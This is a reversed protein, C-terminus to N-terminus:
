LEADVTYHIGLIEGVATGAAGTSVVNFGQDGSAQVATASHDAGDTIDRVQANAAAPNFLTITPATSRKRVHFPITSSIQANAGAVTAPFRAEGTGAGANQAPATAYFFSKEYYRECLALEEQFPRFRVPSAVTGLQLSVGTIRFFNTNADLANVQNTSTLLADSNWTGISATQFSAGAALTWYVSVGYGSTYDWTGASPSATFSVSKQEWTDAVSVSYEAVYSRDTGFNQLAVSHVGTKPSMVWFSLTIPRQAFYRWNYGEIVHRLMYLDGAGISADATTVDVELSYNFLVGAAAVTPVNTSRNLTVVGAGSTHWKFRDPGYQANAAAAFTTGRQWVDLSGNIIPNELGDVYAKTAARTSASATTLASTFDVTSNATMAAFQSTGNFTGSNITPGNQHVGAGTGTSTTVGTGGENVPVPITISGASTVTAWDIGGGVKGRAFSGVVPVDVGQDTLASSKPLLFARKMQEKLQQVQMVLKDLDREIRTAPFPENAQYTNLQSPPQKRLLTVTTSSAPAATFTVNGGSLDGVGSVTYDVDVTKVTSDVLVEIDQKQYIKFTYAFVTTSGNGSYRNASADENVTAQSLYVSGLFATGLVASLMCAIGFRKHWRM